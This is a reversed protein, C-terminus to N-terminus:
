SKCIALGGSGAKKDAGALELITGVLESTNEPPLPALLRMMKDAIVCQGPKLKAGVMGGIMGEIFPQLAADPMAAMLDTAQRTDGKTGAIRFFAKRASPWASNKHVAYSAILNHGETTMYGSTGVESACHDILGTLMSPMAFTTLALVETSSLCTAQEVAAQAPMALAAACFGLTSVFQRFGKDM